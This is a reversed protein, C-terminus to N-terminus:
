APLAGCRVGVRLRRGPEVPRAGGQQHRVLGSRRQHHGAERRGLGGHLDNGGDTSEYVGPENALPELRTTGGNGIVHSLGRVAQASGVFIHKSNTPDIVISTIGRGLFADRGPTACTFVANNVCTDDLKKWKNGGDTSKYIGVGAECGSSCRNAEGTGLYITNHKKDTPDLTLVGVSNQDLDKPKLQKWEPNAETAKDTRWVGGGAAGVWVRCDNKGKTGCDPDVALATIRSATNNTAGSFATVGPQTANEKPGVLQWKHGKGKPDGAKADKAAIGEFTAEAKAAFRRRSRPPRIPARLPSTPTLAVPRAKM